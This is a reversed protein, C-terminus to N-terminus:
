EAIELIESVGPSGSKLNDFPDVEAHDWEADLRVSQRRRHFDAALVSVVKV